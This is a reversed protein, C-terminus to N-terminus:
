ARGEPVGTSLNKYITINYDYIPNQLPPIKPSAAMNSLGLSCRISYIEIVPHIIKTKFCFPSLEKFNLKSRQNVRQTPGNLM